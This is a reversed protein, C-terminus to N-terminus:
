SVMRRSSRPLSATNPGPVNGGQLVPVMPFADIFDQRSRGLLRDGEHGLRKKCHKWNDGSKPGNGSRTCGNPYYIEAAVPAGALGGTRAITTTM